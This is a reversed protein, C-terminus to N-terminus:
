LTVAVTEAPESFDIIIVAASSFDIYLAANVVM